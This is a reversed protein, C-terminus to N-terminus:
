VSSLKHPYRSSIKPIGHSSIKPIGQPYWILNGQPRSGAVALSENFPLLPVQLCLQGLALTLTPSQLCLQGLALPLLPPSAPLAARYGLYSLPKCAFSGQQWPLIPVREQRTLLAAKRAILLASKSGLEREPLYGCPIGLIDELYGWPTGLNM